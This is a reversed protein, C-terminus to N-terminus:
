QKESPVRFESRSEKHKACLGNIIQYFCERSESEEDAARATDTIIITSVTKIMNDSKSKVTQNTRPFYNM